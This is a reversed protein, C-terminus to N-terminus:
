PSIPAAAVTRFDYILFTQTRATPTQSQLYEVVVHDNLISGYVITTSVALQRGQLVAAVDGATKLPLSHLHVRHFPYFDVAPDTGYYWVDLPSGAHQQQWRALEPIGQGWDYNADSIQLYGDRTGGYL